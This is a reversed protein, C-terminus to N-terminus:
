FDYAVEGAMAEWIQACTERVAEVSCSRARSVGPPWWQGRVHTAGAVQVMVEKRLGSGLRSDNNGGPGDGPRSKRPPLVMSTAM